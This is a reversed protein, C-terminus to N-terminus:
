RRVLTISPCLTPCKAVALRWRGKDEEHFGQDPLFSAAPANKASPIFSAVLDAAEVARAEEALAVLLATEVGRGLVRCSLLFTDLIMESREASIEAIVVGTLGYDGFKDSVRLGYIRHLPSDALARMEDLTRRITTLNFQNTKNILQTIRDLDEPQARFFDLRLGLSQRFEEKTLTSGLLERQQEVRMMDSRQRDEQTVELRDFCTLRQMAELIDAPEEPLLISLVEPRAGRMYDIEMPNDDIFVLSDVGINLSKAIQPIGDSKPNWNIQWAAIHERKLLMGGHKDFVDWVDAENNKSALALLVGQQRWYLLLRQFDRFATGPFEDGLQIGGMGDEGIVGGWLTNDCDLVVCKKQAQRLSVIMRALLAGAKLLFLDTFPQRYLYWQRADFSDALGCERQAADFDCIRLGTIGATRELFRTTLARHLQGLGQPNDLASTSTPLCTPFPPLNIFLAGKFAARLGQLVSVLQDIKAGAREFAGADGQLFALLEELVIDELRFLLIIVDPEVSFHSKYDLCVQFLQNYPGHEIIPEMGAEVLPAGIFPYLSNDTFTSAVTLRLPSKPAEVKMREVHKRWISKLEAARAQPTLPTLGPSATEHM